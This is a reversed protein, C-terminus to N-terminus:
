DRELGEIHQRLSRLAYHLRSKVTGDHCGLVNAIDDVKMEELFRLTLIRRHDISLKQLGLHVLEASILIEEPDRQGDSMEIDEVAIQRRTKSRLESVARDHAIRYIWVRFAEASKLGRLKRYVTLWVQQMVDFAADQNGLIRTVFYVLRRDYLDVLKEFAERDGSRALLVLVREDASESTSTM